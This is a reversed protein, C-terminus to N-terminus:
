IIHVPLLAHTRTLLNNVQGGRYRSRKGRTHEYIMIRSLVFKQTYHAIAERRCDPRLNVIVNIIIIIFVNINDVKDLKEVM